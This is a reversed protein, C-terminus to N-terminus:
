CAEPSPWVFSSFGLFGTCIICSGDIILRNRSCYDSSAFRHVLFPVIIPNRIATTTASASSYDVVPSSDKRKFLGVGAAPLLYFFLSLLSLVKYHISFIGWGVSAGVLKLGFFGTSSVRKRLSIAGNGYMVLLALKFRASWLFACYFQLVRPLNQRQSVILCYIKLLERYFLCEVGYAVGGPSLRLPDLASSRVRLSPPPLHRCAQSCTRQGSLAAPLRIWRLM